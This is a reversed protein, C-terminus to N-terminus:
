PSSSSTALTTAAALALRRALDDVLGVMRRHHRRSRGYPDAIDDTARGPMLDASRRGASLKAVWTGFEDASGGHAALDEARRVLEILTFTRPWASEDTAVVHYVHDRTMTIVLDSGADDLLRRTLRQSGHTSLDIGFKAAAIATDNHVRGHGGHTGASVVTTDIGVAALERQIAREAVPSRCINATCVALLRPPTRGISM